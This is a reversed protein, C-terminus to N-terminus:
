VEPILAALFLLQPPQPCLGESGQPFAGKHMGKTGGLVLHPNVVKPPSHFGLKAALKHVATFQLASTRSVKTMSKIEEEQQRIRLALGNM